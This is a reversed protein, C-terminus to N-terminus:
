LQAQEQQLDMCSPLSPLSNTAGEGLQNYATRGWNCTAEPYQPPALKYAPFSQPLAGDTYWMSAMRWTFCTPFTCGKQTLIMWASHILRMFENNGWLSDKTMLVKHTPLLCRLDVGLTFVGRVQQTLKIKFKNEQRWRGLTLVVLGIDGHRTDNNNFFINTNRAM